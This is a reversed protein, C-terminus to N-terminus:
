VSNFKHIKIECERVIQELTKSQKNYEELSLPFKFSFCNLRYDLNIINDEGFTLNLTNLCINSPIYNKLPFTIFQEYRNKYTLYIYDSLINLPRKVLFPINDNVKADSNFKFLSLGGLTLLTRKFFNKRNM